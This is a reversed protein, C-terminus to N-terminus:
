NGINKKPRYDKINACYTLHTRIKLRYADAPDHNLEEPQVSTKQLLATVACRESGRPTLVVTSKLCVFPLGPEEHRAYSTVYEMCTSKTAHHGLSALRYLPGRGDAAGYSQDHRGPVAVTQAM